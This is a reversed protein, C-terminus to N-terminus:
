NDDDDDDDVDDDHSSNNYYNPSHVIGDDHPTTTDDPHHEVETPTTTATISTFFGPDHEPWFGKSRLHKIQDKPLIHKIIFCIGGGGNIRIFPHNKSFLMQQKNITNNM